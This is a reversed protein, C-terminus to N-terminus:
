GRAKMILREVVGSMTEGRDTAIRELKARAEDSLTFISHKRKRQANPITPGSTTGKTM